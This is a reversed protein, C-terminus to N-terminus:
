ILIIAAYVRKMIMFAIIIIYLSSELCRAHALVYEMRTLLNRCLNRGRAISGDMTEAVQMRM